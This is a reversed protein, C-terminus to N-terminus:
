EPREGLAEIVLQAAPVASAPNQGTVLQGDRVAHSKFDPGGDHLAGLQRLRTELLFPVSKDLGVAREESDTFAAVKRGAVFPSGDAKKAGVLGAPGHCVAAVVKGARDFREVLRALEASDPYDFMTGHGGPLFLADFDEVVFDTFKLTAAVKAKLEMDQLYREVSPDNKGAAAVSRADVPVAGGKISAITVQAGADRFAYYPATLEELWVGTPEGGPSMRDASTTVMLIRKALLFDAVARYAPLSTPDLLLNSARADSAFRAIVMQARPDIYIAQGHVGRAMFAGHDDHSIWWQNHYSWGPLTTYGGHVFAERSAGRRIEDIVAAPVIQQGNWRGGLRIMEGFRAMDRLRANFGGSAVATGISDVGFYADGEAGLRNWIRQQLLTEVPQGTARAIIWGLVDTNPSRYTFHEGHTGNKRLSRAYDYITTPGTGGPPRPLMGLAAAYAPVSSKPDAYNESHDLATTMDLVQQVTADGFASDALEPVYRTVLAAPDLKDEVILLGALTGIFSKTASFAIHEGAEGLAGFYREYVIRGEHLVVIGDTHNLALSEAWTMERGDGLTKFTLGDLDAERATRPLPAVPGDGRAVLKTPFLERWHSFSWRMQPFRYFSGDAFRIPKEPPPPTGVMWGLAVPDTARAETTDAAATAASTTLVSAATLLLATWRVKSGAASSPSRVALCRHM